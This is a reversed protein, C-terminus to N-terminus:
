EEDVSYQATEQEAYAKELWKDFKGRSEVTLRGKMKYHGWGCLEACVIDFKGDKVAHFWIHQQMGPVMDQKVRLNPLFFSHLVDMSEIRIVVDEDMPVHLDNILHLDDLTDLKGDKGPYQIKWEFQRGTVRVIPPMPTGDALTPRYMRANAWADMQYIAIFLLTVAPLISWIVELTHSGHSYIVPETNSAADYKVMIWALVIATGIFVAGTLYMIFNFLNDIVHSKAILEPFWHGRVPAWDNIAFVFIGIGLIPVLAFFFSWFKGM